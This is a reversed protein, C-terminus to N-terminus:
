RNAKAERESENEPNESERPVDSTDQSNSLFGSDFKIRSAFALGFLDTAAYGQENWDKVWGEAEQEDWVSLDAGEPRVFLTLAMIWAPYKQANIREGINIANYLTVCADAYKQANLLGYAKQLLKLLDGASNGAEMEVRLEELRQFGEVTLNEHVVYRRGNATFSRTKEDLRKIEEM